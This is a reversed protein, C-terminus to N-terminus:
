KKNSGKVIGKYFEDNNLRSFIEMAGKLRENFSNTSGEPFSGRLEPLSARLEEIAEVLEQYQQEASENPMSM